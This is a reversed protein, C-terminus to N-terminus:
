RVAALALPMGEPAAAHGVENQVTPLSNMSGVSNNLVIGKGAIYIARM